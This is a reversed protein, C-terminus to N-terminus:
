NGQIQAYMKFSINDGKLASYIKEKFYTGPTAYFAYDISFSLTDNSYTSLIDIFTVSRSYQYDTITPSSITINDNDYDNCSLSSSFTHYGSDSKSMDSFLNLTTSVSSAYGLVLDLVLNNCSSFYTKCTKIDIEYTVNIHGTDTIFSSEDVFGTNYYSFISSEKISAFNDVYKVDEVLMNGSADQSSGTLNDDSAITWSSFGISVM